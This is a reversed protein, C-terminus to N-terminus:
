FLIYKKMLKLYIIEIFISYILFINFNNNMLPVSLLFFTVFLILVILISVFNLIFHKKYIILHERTFFILNRIKELNYLYFSITFLILFNIKINEQFITLVFVSTAIVLFYILTLNIIKAFVDNGKKQLQSNKKLIEWFKSKIHFSFLDGIELIIILSLIVSLDISINYLYFIIISFISIIKYFESILINVLIKKLFFYFRMDSFINLKKIQSFSIKSLFTILIFECICIIMLYIKINLEKFFFLYTILFIITIFLNLRFLLKSTLLLIISFFFTFIFIYILLNNLLFLDLFLQFFFIIVFFSFLLIYSSRYLLCFFEKKNKLLEYNKLFLDNIFINGYILDKLYLFVIILLFDDQISFDNYSFFIIILFIIYNCLKYYTNEFNKFM